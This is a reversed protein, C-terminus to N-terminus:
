KASKLFREDNDAPLELSPISSVRPLIYDRSFEGLTFSATSLISIMVLDSWSETSIPPNCALIWEILEYRYLDKKRKAKEKSEEASQKKEARREKAWKKAESLYDKCITELYAMKFKPLVISRILKPDSEIHIFGNKELGSLEPFNYVIVSTTALNSFFFYKLISSLLEQAKSDLSM